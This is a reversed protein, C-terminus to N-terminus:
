RYENGNEEGFSMRRRPRRGQGIPREGIRSGPEPSDLMVSALGNPNGQPMRERRQPAQEEQGNVYEEVLWIMLETLTEFRRGRGVDRYLEDKLSPDVWFKVAEKGDQRPKGM